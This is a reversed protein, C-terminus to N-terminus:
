VQGRVADVAATVAADNGSTSASGAVALLRDIGDVAVAFSAAPVDAGLDHVEFGSLRAVNAVLRLPLAHREGPAAGAVVVGRSVGRRAFRSDLLALLQTAIVSARHEHGVDVAGAEWSDGIAQMAPAIVDVHLDVPDTGAALAADIVGKAGRRDGALLRLRLRRAWDVQPRPGASGGIGARERQFVELDDRAVVWSRGRRNATLLGLRVYRYATMYHVELADAAEQLTLDDAGPM